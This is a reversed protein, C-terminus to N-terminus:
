RLAGNTILFELEALTRPCSGDVVGRGPFVGIVRTVVRGKASLTTVEVDVPNTTNVGIHVPIVNQSCYGSGTDMVGVGLV